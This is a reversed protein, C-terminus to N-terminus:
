DDYQGGILELEREATTKGIKEFSRMAAKYSAVAPTDGNRDVRPGYTPASSSRVAKARAAEQDKRNWTRLRAALDWTDCSQWKLLIGAKQQSKTPRQLPAAWYDCFAEIMATPYLDSYDSVAARFEEQM